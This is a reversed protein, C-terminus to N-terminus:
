HSSATDFLEKMHSSDNADVEDWPRGQAYQGGRAAATAARQRM